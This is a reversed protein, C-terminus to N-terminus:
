NLTSELLYGNTNREREIERIADRRPINVLEWKYIPKGRVKVEVLIHVVEEM